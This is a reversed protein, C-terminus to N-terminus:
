LLCAKKALIIQDEANEPTLLYGLALTIQRHNALNEFCLTLIGFELLFNRRPKNREKKEEKKM